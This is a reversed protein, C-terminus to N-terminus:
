TRSFNCKLSKSSERSRVLTLNILLLWNGVVLNLVLENGDVLLVGHLVGGRDMANELGVGRTYQLELQLGSRLVNIIWCCVRSQCSRQLAEGLPEVVDELNELVSKPALQKTVM